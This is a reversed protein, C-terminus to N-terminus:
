TDAFGDTYDEYVMDTDSGRKDVRAHAWVSSSLLGVPWDINATRIADLATQVMADVAQGATAADAKSDLPYGYGTLFYGDPAHTAVSRRLLTQVADDTPLAQGATVGFDHVLYVYLEQERAKQIAYAIPDFAPDSQVGMSSLPLILTNWGDKAATAIASDLQTQVTAATESARTLYDTGAVLWVAKMEDPFVYNGKVRETPESPAPPETPRTPVPSPATPVSTPARSFLAAFTGNLTLVVALALVVAFAGFSSFLIWKKASQPKGYRAM